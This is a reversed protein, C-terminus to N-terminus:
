VAKEEPRARAEGGHHEMPLAFLLFGQRVMPASPHLQATEKFHRVRGVVDIERGVDPHLLLLGRGKGVVGEM